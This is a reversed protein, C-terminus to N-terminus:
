PYSYKAEAPMVCANQIEVEGGSLKPHMYSWGATAAPSIGAGLAAALMPIFLIKSNSM